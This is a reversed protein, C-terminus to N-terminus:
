YRPPLENVYTPMMLGSDGNVEDAGSTEMVEGMWLYWSPDMNIIEAPIMSNAGTGAGYSRDFSVSGGAIVAGNIRLQVSRAPSGLNNKKEDSEAFPCTEINEKAILIADIREVNCNIIINNAYIIVKPISELTSYSGNYEINGDITITGNENKYMKSEGSNPNLNADPAGVTNVNEEEIEDVKETLRSVLAEINVMSGGSYNLDGKNDSNPNDIIGGGPDIGPNVNNGKGTYGATKGNKLYSYNPSLEGGNNGAFGLAAGSFLNGRGSDSGIEVSLEGWSGFRRPAKVSVPDALLIKDALPVNANEEVFVDGGWVQFSPKKSVPIEMPKSYAWEHNGEPDAWGTESDSSEAPYVAARAYIKAGAPLDSVLMYQDQMEVDVGAHLDGTTPESWRCSGVDMGDTCFGVKWKAGKVITAYPDGGVLTNPKKDTIITYSVKSNEGAFVQNDSSEMVPTNVFNYPIRVEMNNSRLPDINVEGSFEGNGEGRDNYVVDVRKPTNRGSNNCNTMAQMAITEGVDSMTVVRDYDGVLDSSDSSSKDGFVTKACSAGDVLGGYGVKISFANQWDPENDRNFNAGITGDIGFITKEYWAQVKPILTGRVMVHDGPKAYVPGNSWNGYLSGSTANRIKADISSETGGVAVACVRSTTKGNPYDVPSKGDVRFELRECVKQGPYMTITDWEDKRVKLASDIALGSTTLVGTNSNSSGERYIVYKAEGSGDTRKLYHRFTVECGSVPDCDPLILTDGVTYERVASGSEPKWRHVADYDVVRCGNIGLRCNDLGANKQTMAVSTGVFFGPVRVSLKITSIDSYCYGSSAELGYFCRFFNVSINYDCASKDARKTCTKGEIARSVDLSIKASTSIIDDANDYTLSGNNNREGRMVLSRNLYRGYDNELLNSIDLPTFKYDDGDYVSANSCTMTGGASRPKDTSLKPHEPSTTFIKICTAPQKDNEDGDNDIVVGHMYVNIVNNTGNYDVTADISSTDSSSSIWMAGDAGTGNCATYLSPNVNMTVDKCKVANVETACFCVNIAACFAVVMAIAKLKYTM